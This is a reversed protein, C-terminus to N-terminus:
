EKVVAMISAAEVQCAGKVEHTKKLNALLGLALALPLMEFNGMQQTSSGYM